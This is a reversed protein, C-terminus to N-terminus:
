MGPHGEICLAGTSQTAPPTGTLDQPSTWSRQLTEVRYISATARPAEQVGAKRHGRWGRLTSITM